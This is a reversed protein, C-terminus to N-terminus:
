SRWEAAARDIWDGIDEALDGASGGGYRMEEISGILAALDTALGGPAGADVLVSAADNPSLSGGPRELRASLWARLAGDAAEWDGERGAQRARKAASRAEKVRAARQGRDTHAMRRRARLGALSGLGFLPILLLGLVLPSTFRVREDGLIRDGTRLPLIDSALIEVQEKSHAIGESRAVAPEAVPDGTVTLSLPGSRADAYQGREPDFYSFVVPPIRVRGPKLPVLSKRFIARSHVEAGVLAVQVDPDEDYIRVSEPLAVAVEPARLAGVGDLQLTLTVTDGTAVTDSDLAARLRFQGVAGSYTGPKGAPLPRVNVSIASTELPVERVRAFVGSGRVVEPLVVKAAAVQTAGPELAFLPLGARWVEVRRGDQITMETEWQPEIGPESSLAGFDPLGGIGPKRIQSTSGVELTWTLSEGVYPRVDSVSARAYHQSGPTPTSAAGSGTRAAAKVVKVQLANSLLTQGGITVEAPGLDWDGITLAKLEFEYTVSQSVSGRAMSFASSSGTSSLVYGNVRPFRPTGSVKAANRVVLQVSAKAGLAVIPRDLVLTVDAQQAVAMSPMLLALVVTTLM